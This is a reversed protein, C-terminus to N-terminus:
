MCGLDAQAAVCRGGAAVVARKAAAMADILSPWGTPAVSIIHNWPDNVKSSRRAFEQWTADHHCVYRGEALKKALEAQQEASMMYDAELDLSDVYARTIEDQEDLFLQVFRGELSHPVRAVMVNGGCAHAAMVDYEVVGDGFPVPMKAM